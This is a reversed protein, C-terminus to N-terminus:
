LEGEGARSACMPRVGNNGSARSVSAAPRGGVTSSWALASHNLGLPEMLSRAAWFMKCVASVLPRKCRPWVMRSEVEPLM